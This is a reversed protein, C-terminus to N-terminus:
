PPLPQDWVGCMRMAIHLVDRQQPGRDIFEGVFIVRRNAYRFMGDCAGIEEGIMMMRIFGFM